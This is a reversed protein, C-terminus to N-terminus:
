CLHPANQAVAVTPINTIVLTRSILGTRTLEPAPTQENSTLVPLYGTTGTNQSKGWTNTDLGMESSWSAGTMQNSSKSTGYSNGSSLCGNWYTCDTITPAQCGFMVSGLVGGVITGTLTGINYCDTLQPASANWAASAGFLGGVRYGKVKGVNYCDQVVSDTGM